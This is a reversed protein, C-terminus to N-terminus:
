ACLPQLGVMGSQVVQVIDLTGFALV